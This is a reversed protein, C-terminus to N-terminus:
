EDDIKEETFFKYFTYNFNKSIVYFHCFSNLLYNTISIYEHLYDFFVILVDVSTNTQKQIRHYSYFVIKIKDSFIM